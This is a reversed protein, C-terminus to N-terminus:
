GMIVITLHGVRLRVLIGTAPLHAKGGPRSLHLDEIVQVCLVQILAGGPKLSRAILQLLSKAGVHLKRSWQWRM